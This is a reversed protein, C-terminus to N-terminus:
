RSYGTGSVSGAPQGVGTPVGIGLSQGFRSLFLEDPQDAVLLGEHNFRLVSPQNGLDVTAEYYTQGNVTGESLNSVRSGGAYYRLGDQVNRPLQDIRLATVDYLPVRAPAGRWDPSNVVAV